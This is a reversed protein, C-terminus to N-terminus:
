CGCHDAPKKEGCFINIICHGDGEACDWVSQEEGCFINIVCNKDHKIKKAQNDM